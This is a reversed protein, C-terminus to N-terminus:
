DVITYPNKLLMPLANLAFVFPSVLENLGFELPMAATNLLLVIGLPRKGLALEGPTEFINIVIYCFIFCCFIIQKNFWLM